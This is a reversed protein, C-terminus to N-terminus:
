SGETQGDEDGGVDSKNNKLYSVNGNLLDKLLVQGSPLTIIPEGGLKETGLIERAKDLDYVGNRVYSNIVNAQTESDTRLLVKENFRIKYGQKRETTTLLKYDMEQEIQEFIILLCDNLYKLNDQEESRANEKVFGLKSLPVRFSMAIEEKSLRRLQEYQADALSLNLANVSYGAPITFVRGNSSYIRSFKEQMKKIEKEEKLDSTLQVVIKNTLGNRFLTNLYEQSKVSTDLSENLISKNAKGKIGDLTFDRLIIIDKDFCSGVECDVGEYDWLIKNNKVGKILGANDITCKKIKVPYLGEIKSGNRKIYLGSYGYHKALVVFTKYCDIASMYPNPRLRLLDYLYHQKALVEGKETEKKVQVTCKAVDQSINNICSFYTSEKLDDEFPTIDYGNEFSYVEKWDNINITKDSRKEIKDWIM